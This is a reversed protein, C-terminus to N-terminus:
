VRVCSVAQSFACVLVLCVSLVCDASSFCLSGGFRSRAGRRPERLECVGGSSARSSLPSIRSPLRAGELATTTPFDLVVAQLQFLTCLSGTSDGRNVERGYSVHVTCAPSSQKESGLADTHLVTKIQMEM